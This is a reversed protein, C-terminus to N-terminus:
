VAHAAPAGAEGPPPMIDADPREEEDGDLLHEPGEGGEEDEAGDEVAAHGGHRLAAMEAEQARDAEAERREEDTFNFRVLPHLFTRGKLHEVIAARTAKGTNRSLVSTATATREIAAKSLNGLLEETATTPLYADADVAIGAVRAVTGSSSFGVRCSLAQRLMGRAAARLTRPDATLVGGETISVALASREGSGADNGHAGSRVTVNKGALALVLLGILTDDGIEAEAFAAHLAETRLDGM